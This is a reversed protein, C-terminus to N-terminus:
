HFPQAKSSKTPPGSPPPPGAPPTEGAPQTQDAGPPPPPGGRTWRFATLVNNEFTCEAGVDSGGAAGKPLDTRTAAVQAIITRVDPSRSTRDGLDLQAFPMAMKMVEGCRDALTFTDPAVAAGVKESWSCGALGLAAFLLFVALSRM